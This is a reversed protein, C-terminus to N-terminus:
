WGPVPAPPNAANVLAIATAGVVAAAIAATIAATWPRHRLPWAAWAALPAAALPALASAPVDALGYGLLWWCPTLAALAVAIPLPRLADGLFMRAIAGAGAAMASGGLAMALSDSHGLHAAFAACGLTSGWAPLACGPLRAATGRAALILLLWTVGTVPIWTAAQGLSWQRLPVGLVAPTALAVFVLSLPAVAKVSMPALLALIAAPAALILPWDNANGPPLGNWGRLLFVGLGLGVAIAVGDWGWSPSGLPRRRRLLWVALIGVATTITPVGIAFFPDSYPSPM